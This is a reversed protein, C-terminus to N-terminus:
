NLEMGASGMHLVSLRGHSSLKANIERAAGDVLKILDKQPKKCDKM